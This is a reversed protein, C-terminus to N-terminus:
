WIKFNLLQQSHYHIHISKSISLLWLNPNETNMKSKLCCWYHSIQSLCPLNWCRLITNMHTCTCSHTSLPISKRCGNHLVFWLNDQLLHSKERCMQHHTEELSMQTIVLQINLISVTRPATYVSLTTSTNIYIPCRMFWLCIRPDIPRNGRWRKPKIWRWKCSESFGVSSLHGQM